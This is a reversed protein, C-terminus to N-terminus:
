LPLSELDIYMLDTSTTHPPVVPPPPVVGVGVSTIGACFKLAAVRSLLVKLSFSM